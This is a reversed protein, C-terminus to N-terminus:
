GGVYYAVDSSTRYRRVVQEMRRIAPKHSRIVILFNSEKMSRLATVLRFRSVQDRLGIAPPVVILANSTHTRIEGPNSHGHRLPLTTPQTGIPTPELGM